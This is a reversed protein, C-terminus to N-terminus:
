ENLFKSVLRHTEIIAKELVDNVVTFDFDRNLKMEEEAKLLRMRIKEKSDTERGLLREKLVNVSPPMIFISIAKQGFIKKLNIGGKVDVDFLVNNKGAWIREVESNLTGYFHDKYVEEWEAFDDKSIRRRFEDPTLFYYDKGDTETVRKARTTASVSFELNLSSNLLHRVITTKGAGSPGSIIVVKNEM